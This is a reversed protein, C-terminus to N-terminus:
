FFVDASYRLDDCGAKIGGFMCVGLATILMLALFRKRGKVISRIIDKSYAKMESRTVM